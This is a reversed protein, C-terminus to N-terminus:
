VTYLYDVLDSYGGVRQGTALDIILPFTTVGMSAKFELRQEDTMHHREEYAFGDENIAVKAKECYPCDPLSHILFRPNVGSM